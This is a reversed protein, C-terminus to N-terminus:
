RARITTQQSTHLPKQNAEEASGQGLLSGFFRQWEDKFNHLLVEKALVFQDMIRGTFVANYVDCLSVWTANKNSKSKCRVEALVNKLFAPVEAPKLYGTFLQDLGDFIKAAHDMMDSNMVNEQGNKRIDGQFQDVVNSIPKSFICVLEPLLTTAKEVDYLNIEFIWEGLEFQKSKM